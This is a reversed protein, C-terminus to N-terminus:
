LYLGRKNIVRGWEYIDGAGMTFLIHPITRSQNFFRVVDQIHNVQHLTQSTKLQPQIAKILKLQYNTKVAKERASLYIPAIFIDDALLLSSAFQDLLQKTRSITHSQFIVGIRKDKFWQRGATLTARIENPHHAYDDYIRIGTPTRGLFEFRRKISVFSTLGGQIDSPKVGVLDATIWAAAANLLNFVGPLPLKLNFRGAPSHLKAYALPHSLKVPEVRWNAKSDLGYTIIQDFGALKLRKIVAQNNPNDHLSVVWGGNILVQKAFRTFTDLTHDLNRYIDPHDYEINTLVLIRPKQWSFRPRHDTKPCTAYEDAEAIFYKGGGWRGPWILPKIGGAGVLYAPELGAQTLLHSILASITTKGGVGAVSIGTPKAAMLRGVMQAQTMAPIGLKGAQKFQPNLRGQHAGTTIVWDPKLQDILDPEFSPYIKFRRQNLLWSTVFDDAVDSGVVKVGMDDLICALAAMGVGKIGILFATQKAQPILPTM